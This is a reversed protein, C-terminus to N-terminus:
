DPIDSAEFRSLDDNKIDQSAMSSFRMSQLEVCNEFFNRVTRGNGFNKDRAEYTKALWDKVKVKAPPALSYDHAKCLSEYIQFLENSDYDPFEIVTKFRSELGPNSGLTEDIRRATNIVARM